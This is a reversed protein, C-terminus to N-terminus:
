ASLAPSCGPNRAGVIAHSPAPLCARMDAHVASHLSPSSPPSDDQEARGEHGVAAQGELGQERAHQATSHASAPLNVTLLTNEQCSFTCLRDSTVADCTLLCHENVCRLHEHVSARMCAAHQMTAYM